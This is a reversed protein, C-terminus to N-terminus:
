QAPERARATMERYQYPPPTATVAEAEALAVIKHHLPSKHCAPDTAAADGALALAQCRCGGWDIEARECTRCLDPMWDTGRYATFAPSFLWIDRLSHERVNWFELHPITEAAHCPLAKGSPAVNISRRGWGGSCAKPYKAYYDPIVMDIVLTGELRTRAAEVIAIARDVDPKAPMLAARNAYAWGYYQTHAVELRKAGMAVALGVLDGVQHINGRHIVANLTLPLGADVVWRGVERKKEYAGRYGAVHDNVAGDAGQISLQVHDLGADVLRTLLDQSVGVGSTILNSYIGVEACHRTLEVIDRRATPEGGSLHTHLVGLAAAETFVRKWTETDLEVSRRDLEMPNSCYPCKLPCRHTLEALLGLPAPVSVPRAANM